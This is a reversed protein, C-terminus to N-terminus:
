STCTKSLCAHDKKPVYAYSAPALPSLAWRQFSKYLNAINPGLASPHIVRRFLHVLYKLVISNEPIKVSNGQFCFSKAFPTRSEVCIRGDIRFFSALFSKM